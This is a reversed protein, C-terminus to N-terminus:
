IFDFALQKNRKNAHAVRKKAKKVVRKKAPKAKRKTKFGGKEDELAHFAARWRIAEKKWNVAM